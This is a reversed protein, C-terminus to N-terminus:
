AADIRGSRMAAGASGLLDEVFDAVLPYVVSAGAELLVERSGIASEIGIGVAGVAEHL